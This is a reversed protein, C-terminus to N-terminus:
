LGHGFSQLFALHSQISNSASAASWTGTLALDFGASVLDYTVAAPASVGASGGYAIGPAGTASAVTPAAASGISGEGMAFVSGSAGSSRVIIDVEVKWPANTPSNTTIAGSDWIVTGGAGGFLLRFRMTAASIASIKGRAVYRLVSGARLAYAPIPFNPHLITATTTNAVATGDAETWHTAAAFLQSSM